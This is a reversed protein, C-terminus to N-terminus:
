LAAVDPPVYKMGLVLAQLDTVAVVLLVVMAELDLQRVKPHASKL